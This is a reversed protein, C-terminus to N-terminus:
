YFATESGTFPRKVGHASCTCLCEFVKRIQYNRQYFKSSKFINVSHLTTLFIAYLRSKAVDSPFFIEM